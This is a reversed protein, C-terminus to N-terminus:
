NNDSLYEDAKRQVYEDRSIKKLIVIEEDDAIIRFYIPQDAIMNLKELCVQKPLRIVGNKMPAVTRIIKQSELILGGKANNKDKTVAYM